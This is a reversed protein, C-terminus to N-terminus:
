FLLETLRIIQQETRAIRERIVDAGGELVERLAPPPPLPAEGPVADDCPGAVRDILSGLQETIQGLERIANHLGLHKDQKPSLATNCDDGPMCDIM